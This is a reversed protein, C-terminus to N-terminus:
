SACARVKACHLVTTETKAVTTWSELMARKKVKLDPPRVKEGAEEDVDEDAAEEGEEEEDMEEEDDEEITEGDSDICMVLHVEDATFGRITYVKRSLAFRTKRQDLAVRVGKNFGKNLLLETPITGAMTVAPVELLTTTEKAKASHQTAQGKKYKSALAPWAPIPDVMGNEECTIKLEDYFFHAVDPITNFQKHKNKMSLKTWQLERM